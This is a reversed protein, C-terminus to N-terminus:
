LWIPFLFNVDTLFLVLQPLATYKFRFVFKFYSVSQKEGRLCSLQPKLPTAFMKKKFIQLQSPSSPSESHMESIKSCFFFFLDGTLRRQLFSFFLDGTFRRLLSHMSLAVCGGTRQTRRSFQPAIWRENTKCTKGDLIYLLHHNKFDHKNWKIQFSVDVGKWKCRKITSKQDRYSSTWNRANYSDM